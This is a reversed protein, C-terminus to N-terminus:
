IPAFCQKIQYTSHAWISLFKNGNQSKSHFVSIIIFGVGKPM